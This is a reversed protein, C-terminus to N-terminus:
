AAQQAAPAAPAAGAGLVKANLNTIAQKAQVALAATEPTIKAGFSQALELGVARRFALEYGPPMSIDDSLNAFKTLPLVEHLELSGGTPAPRIKINETPFAGDPLIAPMAVTGAGAAWEEATALQCPTVLGNGVVNASRIRLPRTVLAYSASGNLAVLDYSLKFVPLGEASWSDLLQNVVRLGYNSEDTSPTEGPAIVGIDVLADTIFTQGTM